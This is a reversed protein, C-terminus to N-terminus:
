RRPIEFSINPFSTRVSIKGLIGAIDIRESKMVVSRILDSAAGDVRKVATPRMRLRDITVAGCGARAFVDIMGALEKQPDDSSVLWPSIMVGTKLGAASAERLIKLRREPPPAGPELVGALGEDLTTITVCLEVGKMKQLVDLDRLVLDSKTMLMLRARSKSIVEICSRTLGLEKEVPQYPDTVTALGIVAGGIRAIEKKLLRSINGRAEISSGWREPHECKTVDPAYCYLCAHACGRYPNLAYDVDDLGSKTLASQCQM